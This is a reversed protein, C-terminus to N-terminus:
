ESILRFTDQTLQKQHLIQAGTEPPATTGMDRSKEIQSLHLLQKTEAPSLAMVAAIKLASKLSLRRRQRLVESLEGASVGLSRAFARLSYQPNSSMRRRLEESLFDKVSPTEFIM